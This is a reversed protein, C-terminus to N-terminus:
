ATPEDSRGNSAGVWADIDYGRQEWYGPTVADQVEIGDLWKISKYAYMPVVYLRIPAGHKVELPKGFMSNAVLIDDRMAQELTLSETYAGDFSTFRLAAANDKVGCVSLIDKLLVGSWLVDEVRWGTVCQFDKTIQTQPLADFDALSLSLERDVLGTVRLRYTEPNFDPYGNTVTYIRFGGAAPVFEAIAPATSAVLDSVGASAWRGVAIGLAGLGIMSLVIRRGVPAGQQDPDDPRDPNM